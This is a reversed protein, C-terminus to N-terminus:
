NEDMDDDKALLGELEEPTLEYTKTELNDEDDEADSVPEDPLKPVFLLIFLCNFFVIAFVAVLVPIFIYRMCVQVSFPKIWAIYEDKDKKMRYINLSNPSIRASFDSKKYYDTDYLVPAFTKDNAGKYWIVRIIGDPINKIDENDQWLKNNVVNDFVQKEYAKSSSSFKLAIIEASILVLLIDIILFITLLFKKKVAM